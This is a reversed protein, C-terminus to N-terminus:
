IKFYKLTLTRIIIWFKEREWRNYQFNIALNYYRKVRVNIYFIDM